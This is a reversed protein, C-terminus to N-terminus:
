AWHGHYVNECRDLSQQPRIHSLDERSDQLLALVQEGINVGIQWIQVGERPRAVCVVPVRAFSLRFRMRHTDLFAWLDWGDGAM